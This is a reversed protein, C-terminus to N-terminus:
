LGDKVKTVIKDNYFYEKSEQSIGIRKLEKVYYLEKEKTM